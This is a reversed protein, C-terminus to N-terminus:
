AADRRNIRQQLQRLTLPRGKQTVMEQLTLKGDLWLKRRTRGLVNNQVEASQRKLWETYTEESPPDASLLRRQEDSLSALAQRVDDGGMADIQDASWTLPHLQSRCSMHIPPLGPLHGQYPSSTLPRGTNMDFQAGSLSRCIPSTKSDLRSVWIAGRFLVSNRQMTEIRLQSVAHNYGTRIVADAERAVTDTVQRLRDLMQSITEDQSFAQRLAGSFKRHHSGAEREFFGRLREADNANATITRTDIIDRMTARPVALGVLAHATRTPVGLSVAVARTMANAESVMVDLLQRRFDAYFGRYFERIVATSEVIIGDLRDQGAGKGVATPDSRIVRRALEEALAGLQVEFRREDGAALRLLEIDRITLQDSIRQSLSDPM